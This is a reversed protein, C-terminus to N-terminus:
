LKSSIKFLYIAYIWSGTLTMQSSYVSNQCPKANSILMVFHLLVLAAVTSLLETNQIVAAGTSWTERMLSFVSFAFPRWDILISRRQGQSKRTHRHIGFGFEHVQLKTSTEPCLRSLEWVELAPIKLFDMPALCRTPIPNNYRGALSCLSASNM